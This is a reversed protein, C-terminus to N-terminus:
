FGPQMPHRPELRTTPPLPGIQVNFHEADYARNTLEKRMDRGIVGSRGVVEAGSAHTPLGVLLGVM